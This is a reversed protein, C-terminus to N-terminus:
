GADFWEGDGWSNRPPFTTLSDTRSLLPVRRPGTPVFTHTKVASTTADCRPRHPTLPLSTIVCMYVRACVGTNILDTDDEAFGSSFHQILGCSGALTDCVQSPAAMLQSEDQKNVKDFAKWQICCRILKTLNIRWVGEQGLALPARPRKGNAFYRFLLHFAQVLHFPGGFLGVFRPINCGLKNAPHLFPCFPPLSHNMFSICFM